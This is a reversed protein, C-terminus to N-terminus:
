ELWVSFAYSFVVGLFTVVTIIYSFRVRVRSSAFGM